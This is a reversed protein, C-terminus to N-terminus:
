VNKIIPISSGLITSKLSELAISTKDISKVGGLSHRQKLPRRTSKRVKYTAM